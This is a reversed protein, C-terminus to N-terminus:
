PHLESTPTEFRSDKDREQETHLAQIVNVLTKQASLQTATMSKKRMHM